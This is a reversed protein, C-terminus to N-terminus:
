NGNIAESNELDKPLLGLVKCAAGYVHRNIAEDSDPDLNEDRCWEYYDEGEHELVYDIVVRMEETLKTKSM